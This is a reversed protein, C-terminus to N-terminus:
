GEGARPPPVPRLGTPPTADLADLIAQLVGDLNDDVDSNWFRLVRFGVNALRQNRLIDRPGGHQGGDVEVVLKASLCAFDLIYGLRPVQRRFHLGREARWTRLHVWLKAEQPTMNKRLRRAQTDAM